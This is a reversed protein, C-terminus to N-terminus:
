TRSTWTFRSRITNSHAKAVLTQSPLTVGFEPHWYDQECRLVGGELVLEVELENGVAITARSDKLTVQTDPHCHFFVEATHFPGVIEDQLLLAGEHL